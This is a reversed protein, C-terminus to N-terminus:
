TGLIKMHFTQMLINNLIVLELLDDWIVVTNDVCLLITLGRTTVQIFMSYDNHNQYFHANLIAAHFKKFCAPPAQQLGDLVKGLHHVVNPSCPYELPPEM